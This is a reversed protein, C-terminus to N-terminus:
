FLTANELRTGGAPSPHVARRWEGNDDRAENRKKVAPGGTGAALEGRTLGHSAILPKIREALAQRYSKPAYADDRMLIGIRAVHEPGGGVSELIARINRYAQATQERMGGTITGTADTGNQGGIYLTRTGTALVAQSFYPSTHLAEPNIHTLTM